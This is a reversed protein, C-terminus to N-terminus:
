ESLREIKTSKFDVFIDDEINFSEPVDFEEVDDAEDVSSDSGALDIVDQM